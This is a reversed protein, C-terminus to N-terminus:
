NVNVYRLAEHRQGKADVIVFGVQWVGPMHFEIGDIRYPCQASRKHTTAPVNPLGHGHQPMGGTFSLKLNPLSKGQADTVRVCWTQSESSRLTPPVGDLHILYREGATDWAAGQINDFPTDLKSSSPSVSQAQATLACCFLLLGAAHSRIPKLPTNM